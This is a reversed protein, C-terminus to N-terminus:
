AAGGTRKEYLADVGNRREYVMDNLWTHPVARVDPRKLMDRRYKEAAAYDTGFKVGDIFDETPRIFHVAYHYEHNRKSRQMAVFTCDAWQVITPDDAPNNTVGNNNM